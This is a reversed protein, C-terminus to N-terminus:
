LSTAYFFKLKHRPKVAWDVWHPWTSRPWKVSGCKYQALKTRLTTFWYQACEKVLFQCSGKQFWRFFTAPRPLPQVRSRTELRVACGVSGGLTAFFNKTNVIRSVIFNRVWWKFIQLCNAPICPRGEMCCFSHVSSPPQMHNQGWLFYSVMLINMGTQRIRVLWREWLVLLFVFLVIWINSINQALLWAALGTGRHVLAVVWILAFSVHCRLPYLDRQM